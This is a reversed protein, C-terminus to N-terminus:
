LGLIVELSGKKVKVQKVFLEAAHAQYDKKKLTYVVHDEIFNKAAVNFGLRVLPEIREPIHETDLSIIQFDSIRLTQDRKEYRISSEFGGSIEDTRVLPIISKASIDIQLRNKNGLLTVKPEEIVLKGVKLIDEEKPFKRGIKEQIEEETFVLSVMEDGAERTSFFFYGGIIGGVGLLIGALLVLIWKM